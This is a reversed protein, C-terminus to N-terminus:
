SPERLGDLLEMPLADPAKQRAREQQAPTFKPLILRTIILWTIGHSGIWDDVSRADLEDQLCNLLAFLKPLHREAVLANPCRLCTLFSVDCPGGASQPSHEFDLCSTALTDLEGAVASTLKDATTGLAAAAAQPDRQAEKAAREDMIRGRFANASAQADDLAETLIRDAWDRIRPDNRLYHLFSVDPTNTRSASPLHGGVARTTRVEVTTKLRGMTLKLPEAEAEGETEAPADATLGHREVWRFIDLQRGLRIAFPDIHGKAIARAARFDDPGGATDGTWISWVRKSRSFDRSTAALDHLLLFWGGPTHLQSSESGTEWHITERSRTKGRRRKLLNVAVARGQLVRHDAALEKITESNRGSLGVGLVLLPLIDQTTLFVEGALDRQSALDPVSSAKVWDKKPAPVEGTRLMRSLEAAHQRDAESLADPASEFQEILRRSARLRQRIAVVDARAASMIASFERDSYGPVEPRTKIAKWRGYLHGPRELYERMEERLLSAPQVEKLLERIQAMETIVSFDVITMRRHQDFRRLHSVTLGALTAPPRRLEGLWRVLRTLSGWASDAAGRTRLGGSTGIRRGWAAALDAHLRPCPLKSFDYSARRGDEGFFEM